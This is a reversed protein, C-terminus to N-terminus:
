YWYVDQTEPVSEMDFTDYLFWAAHFKCSCYDDADYGKMPIYEIVKERNVRVFGADEPTMGGAAAYFSCSATKGDCKVNIIKVM